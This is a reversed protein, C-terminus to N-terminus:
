LKVNWCIVVNIDKHKIPKLSPICFPYSFAEQKSYYM